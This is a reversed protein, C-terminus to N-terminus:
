RRTHAPQGGRRRHQFGIRPFSLLSLPRPSLPTLVSCLQEIWLACSLWTFLRGLGCLLTSATCQDASGRVKLGKSSNSKQSKRLRRNEASFTFASSLVQRRWLRWLKATHWRGCTWMMWLYSATTWVLFCPLSLCLSVCHSPSHFCLMSNRNQHLFRTYDQVLRPWSCDSIAKNPIWNWWRSKDRREGLGWCVIRFPYLGKCQQDLESTLQLM